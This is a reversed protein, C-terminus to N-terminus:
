IEVEKLKKIIGEITYEDATYHVKLGNSIATKETIPGICIIKSNKIFELNPISNLFSLVTSSSTFIIIDIKNEFAKRLENRIDRFITNYVIVNKVIAGRNELMYIIENRALNSRFLMIRKNKIDGLVNVIEDSIFKRPMFDVKLNYEELAKKTKPGIACIKVNKLIDFNKFRSLSFKVGNYSTWILIDYNKIENIANDIEYYNPIFEISPICIPIFNMKLIENKIEEIQHEARLILVRKM